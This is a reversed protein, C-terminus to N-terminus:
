RMNRFSDYINISIGNKIKQSIPVSTEAQVKQWISFDVREEQALEWNAWYISNLKPEVNEHILDSINKIKKNKM